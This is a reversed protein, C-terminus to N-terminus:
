LAARRPRYFLKVEISEVIPGDNDRTTHQWFYLRQKVGPKLSISEGALIPVPMKNQGIGDDHYCINNIGDDVVRGYQDVGGPIVIERWGDAPVLALFDIKVQATGTENMQGTLKLIFDGYGSAGELGSILRFSLLNRLATSRLLSPTVQRSRWMEVGNNELMFRFRVADSIGYPFRVIANVMSGGYDLLNGPLHWGILDQEYQNELTTAVQAGYSCSADVMESEYGYGDEGEFVQIYRAPDHWNQGIWLYALSTVYTNLIELRSRAMQSGKIAGAGIEVWNNNKTPSVGAGDDCNKVALGTLVSAGNGNSLAVQVEEGEWANERM